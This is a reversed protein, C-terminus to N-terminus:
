LWGRAWYYPIGVLEHLVDGSFALGSYGPILWERWSLGYYQHPAVAPISDLPREVLLAEHHPKRRLHNAKRHSVAEAIELGDRERVPQQPVDVAHEGPGGPASSAARM